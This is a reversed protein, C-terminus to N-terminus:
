FSKISRTIISFILFFCFKKIRKKQLSTNINYNKSNRKNLNGFIILPINLKKLETLISKDQESTNNFVVLDPSKHLVSSGTLLNYNGESIKKFYFNKSIFSHSLQNQLVKNYPLGIFLIKKNKTNYLHIIKLAQKLEIIVNNFSSNFFYKNYNKYMQYKLLHIKILSRSPTKLTTKM